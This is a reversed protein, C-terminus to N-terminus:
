DDFEWKKIIEVPKLIIEKGYYVEFKIDKSIHLNIYELCKEKDDFVEELWMGEYEMAAFLFYQNYKTM